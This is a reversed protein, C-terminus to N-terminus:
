RCGIGLKGAGAEITGGYRLLAGTGEAEPTLPGAFLGWLGIAAGATGAVAGQKVLADCQPVMLNYLIVKAAIVGAKIQTGTSPAVVPHWLDAYERVFEGSM